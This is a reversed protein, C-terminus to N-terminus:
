LYICYKLYYLILNIIQFFILALAFFSSKLLHQDEVQWFLVTKNNYYILM